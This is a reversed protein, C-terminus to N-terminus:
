IEEELQDIRSLAQAERHISFRLSQWQYNDTAVRLGDPCLILCIEFRNVMRNLDAECELIQKEDREIDM